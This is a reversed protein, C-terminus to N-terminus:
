FREEEIGHGGYLPMPEPMPPMIPARGWLSVHV